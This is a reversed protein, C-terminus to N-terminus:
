QKTKAWIFDWIAKLLVYLNQEEIVFGYPMQESSIVVTKGNFITISASCYPMQNDPLYHIRRLNQATGYSDPLNTEQSKFRIANSWIGKRIRRSTFNSLYDQGLTDAFGRQTGFYFYEGESDRLLEEHISRVGDIGEYYRVHPISAVGSSFLSKLSPLLANVTNLRQQFLISLNEPNEAVFYRRTGHLSQSVLNDAILEELYTYVTSRKLKARVALESATGGKELMALYLRAKKENFDLSELMAASIAMKKGETKDFIKSLM